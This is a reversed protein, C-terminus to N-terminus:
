ILAIGVALPTSSVALYLGLGIIYRRVGFDDNARQKAFEVTGANQHLIRVSLLSWLENPFTDELARCTQIVGLWSRTCGRIDFRSGKTWFWNRWRIMIVDFREVVDGSDADADAVRHMLFDATQGPNVAGGHRIMSAGNCWRSYCRLIGKSRPM